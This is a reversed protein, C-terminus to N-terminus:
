PACELDQEDHHRILSAIENLKYRTAIDLATQNKRDRVM